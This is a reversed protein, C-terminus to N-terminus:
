GRRVLVLLGGALVLKAATYRVSEPAARGALLMPIDLNWINIENRNKGCVAMMPLTPHIALNALDGSAGITAMDIVQTWTDTRWIIM